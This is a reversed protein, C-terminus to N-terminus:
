SSRRLWNNFAVLRRVAANGKRSTLPYLIDALEARRDDSWLSAREVFSAIGSQEERSLLVPPAEPEVASPPTARRLLAPYLKEKNTYIVLTDAAIDGLRQSRKSLAMSTLGIGSFVLPFTDVYRLFNRLVSQGITISQGNTQVVRLGVIRKGPTAGHKGAEFLVFYFWDILFAVILIAGMAVGGGFILGWLFYILLSIIVTGLWRFVTDLLFAQARVLPGAIPLQIEVGEALEVVQLTDLLDQQRRNRYSM